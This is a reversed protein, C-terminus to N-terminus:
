LLVGLVRRVRWRNRRSSGGKISEKGAEFARLRDETIRMSAALSKFEIGRQIRRLRIRRAILTDAGNLQAM